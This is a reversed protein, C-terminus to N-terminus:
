SGGSVDDRPASAPAERDDVRTTTALEAGVGTIEGARRLIQAFREEVVARVRFVRVLRM